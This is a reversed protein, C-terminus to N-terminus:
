INTKILIASSVYVTGDLNNSVYTTLLPIVFTNNETQQSENIIEISRYKEQLTIKLTNKNQFIGKTNWLLIYLQYIYIIYLNYIYAIKLSIFKQYYITILM